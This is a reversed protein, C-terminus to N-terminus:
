KMGKGGWESAWDGQSTKDPKEASSRPGACSGAILPVSLRTGKIVPKGALIRPDSVIHALLQDDNM